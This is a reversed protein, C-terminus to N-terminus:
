EVDREEITMTKKRRESRNVIMESLLISNKNRLNLTLSLSELPDSSRNDKRM